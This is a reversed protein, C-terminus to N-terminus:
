DTVFLVRVENIYSLSSLANKYQQRLPSATDLAILTAPLEIEIRIIGALYHLRILLNRNFGPLEAWAKHLLPMLEERLPLLSTSSYDEDNESDIHITVQDVVAIKNQLAAMVREGVHHGESVTILPNVIIHAEVLARGAMQRSRLEHVAKVGPITFIVQYIQKLTADNLGTDILESLNDKAIKTGMRIILLGVVIASLPDLYPFGLMSGALGVLVVLSAMADSRSHLANAILLDSQVRNGVALTYRYVLENAVLSLLAIALVFKAPSAPAVPLWFYQGSHYIIGIGTLVLVLALGLSAATEIRAHGYPHEADASHAGYKAAILVLFDVLLDALSHVGDAVLAQSKGLYGVAIKVVVLIINKLGSLLTLRRVSQYRRSM